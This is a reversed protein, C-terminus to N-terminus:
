AAPLPVTSQRPTVRGTVIARLKLAPKEIVIWSFVAAPLVIAFAILSLWVPAIGPMLWLLTQQTPGAFIYIGFSADVKNCVARLVGLTKTALWLSAYGLFLASTVEALPTKAFVLFLAGFPVLLAAHIVLHRRALYALVGCFFFVIFYRLNDSFGFAQADAPLGLTVTSVVLAIGGIAVKRWREEFLGAFGLLALILYCIVEYKLTWLSSNVYNAYPLTEFVGPLPAAGTTLALTKAVYAYLGPSAFYEGVSLGTVWPGLVFSTIFVCVILAPFIRLARAAAFKLVSRSRDFSQAVLVGSLIFFVQVAYEGLSRGLWPQLPEAADTGASYLYSHSILVFTAMLLRLVGFSNDEPSMIDALYLKPRHQTTM